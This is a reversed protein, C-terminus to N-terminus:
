TSHRSFAASIKGCIATTGSPFGKCITLAAVLHGSLSGGRGRILRGLMDPQAEPADHELGHHAGGPESLRVRDLLLPDVARGMPVPPRRHVRTCFDLREDRSATADISSEVPQKLGLGQDDHGPRPAPHFRRRALALPSAATAQPPREGLPHDVGRRRFMSWWAWAQRRRVGAPGAPPPTVRCCCTRQRAALEEFAESMATWVARWNAAPRASICACTSLSRTTAAEGPAPASRSRGGRSRRRGSAVHARGRTRDELGAVRRAGSPPRGRPASEIASSKALAVGISRLDPKSILGVSHLMRAHALAPSTPRQVSAHRHESERRVADRAPREIFRAARAAEGPRPPLANAGARDGHEAAGGILAEGSRSQGSTPAPTLWASLDAARSGCRARAKTWRSRRGAM